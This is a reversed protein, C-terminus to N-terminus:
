LAEIALDFIVVVLAARRQRREGFYTAIFLRNGGHHFMGSSFRAARATVSSRSREAARGVRRRANRTMAATAPRGSMMAGARAVNRARQHIEALDVAACSCYSERAGAHRNRQVAKGLAVDRVGDGVHQAVFAELAGDDIQAFEAREAM